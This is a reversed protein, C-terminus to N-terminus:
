GITPLSAAAVAQGHRKMKEDPQTLTIQKALEPFEVELVEKAKDIMVQGGEGSTVRGMIILLEIHYFDAYHAIAYGFCTGITEYIKRAGESGEAMAEQVKVLQEPFPMDGYDFGVAPAM